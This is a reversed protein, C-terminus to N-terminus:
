LMVKESVVTGDRRATKKLVVGKVGEVTQLRRGQLDYYETVAEDAIGSGVTEVGSYGNESSSELAFAGAAGMILVSAALTQVISLRKM